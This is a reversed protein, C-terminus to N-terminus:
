KTKIEKWDSKPLSINTTKIYWADKGEIVSYDLVIFKKGDKKNIFTRM